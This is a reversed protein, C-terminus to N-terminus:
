AEPQPTKIEAKAHYRAFILTSETVQRALILKALDEALNQVATALADPSDQTTGPILGIEQWLLRLPGTVTRKGFKKVNKDSLSLLFVTMGYLGNEALVALAKTVVNEQKDFGEEGDIIARGYRACLPELNKM